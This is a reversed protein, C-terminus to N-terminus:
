ECLVGEKNPLFVRALGQRRAAANKKKRIVNM